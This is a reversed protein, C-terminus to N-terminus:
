RRVGLMAAGIIGADNGLQATVIRTQRKSHRSFLQEYVQERLPAMLPEGENCVGGGICLVQPQFVNIVNAIGAALYKIYSEVVAKAAADGKRMANFATRASVKGEEQATQALVGDPHVSIAEKTSAILGTASAYAEFCGRRGCTCLRGDVEIVTHGVEAGAFNFGSYIKGDIIIGSGIGTGLTIVVADKAGQAAGAVCEGLAAANADNDMYVTKGLLATMHAGMPEDYFEINNSYEIINTDRNITGPAGIGVSEIDAMTLGAEEVAMRATQAMDEAIEKGSRPTNTPLKAKALIHCNEDVVGSVINTGGLDVGIYYKM